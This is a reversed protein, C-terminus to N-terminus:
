VYALERHEAAHRHYHHLVQEAPKKWSQKMLEEHGEDALTEELDKHDLVSVIKNAMEDLDWFDVKLVSHLIESVGTQKSILAPTRQALAEFPTLGFPESVSPM